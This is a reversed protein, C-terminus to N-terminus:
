YRMGYVKNKPVFFIKVYVWKIAFFITFVPINHLKPLITTFYLFTDIAIGFALEIGLSPSFYKFGLNVKYIRGIKLIYKLGLKNRINRDIVYSKLEIEDFYENILQKVTEQSIGIPLEDYYILFNRISNTQFLMSQQSDLCEEFKNLRGISIKSFTDEM